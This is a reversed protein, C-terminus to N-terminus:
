QITKVISQRVNANKRAHAQEGPNDETQRRRQVHRADVDVFRQLFAASPTRHCARAASSPPAQDDRLERQRQDQEGARAEHHAAEERHVPHFRHRCTASSRQHM